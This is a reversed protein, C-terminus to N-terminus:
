LLYVKCDVCLIVYYHHDHSMTIYSIVLQNRKYNKFHKKGLDNLLKKKM